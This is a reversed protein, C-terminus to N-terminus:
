FLFFINPTLISGVVDLWYLLTLSFSLFYIHPTTIFWSRRPLNLTIHPKSGMVVRGFSLFKFAIFIFLLHPQPPEIGCGRLEMFRSIFLSILPFFLIFANPSLSPGRLRISWVLIFLFFTLTTRPILFDPERAWIGYQYMLWVHILHELIIGGVWISISLKAYM